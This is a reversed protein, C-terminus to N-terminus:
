RYIGSNILFAVFDLGLKEIEEADFPYDCDVCNTCFEKNIVPKKGCPRGLKKYIKCFKNGVPCFGNNEVNM